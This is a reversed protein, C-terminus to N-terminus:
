AVGPATLDRLDVGSCPAFEDAREDVPALRNRADCCRDSLREVAGRAASVYEQEAMLPLRQMRLSYVLRGRDIWLHLAM